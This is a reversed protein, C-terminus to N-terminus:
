VFHHGTGQLDYSSAGAFNSAAVHLLKPSSPNVLFYMIYVFHQGTADM